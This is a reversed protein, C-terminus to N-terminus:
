PATYARVARVAGGAAPRITVEALKGEGPVRGCYRGDMWLETGAADARVQMPVWCQSAAPLTDWVTALDAKQADTYRIMKPRSHYEFRTDKGAEGALKFEIWGDPMPVIKRKESSFRDTTMDDARVTGNLKQTKGDAFKFEVVIKGAAGVRFEADVANAEKLAITQADPAATKPPTTQAGLATLQGSATLWALLTCFAPIAASFHFPRKM